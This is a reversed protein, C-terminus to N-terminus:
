RPPDGRWSFSNVYKAMDLALQLNAGSPHGSGFDPSFEHYLALAAAILAVDNKVAVLVIARLRAYSSNAGQPYADVAEGYGPQYGVMANPIEYATSADPYATRILDGAIDQATRNEAPRGSLYLTGGDGAVFRLVVGDPKMTAEYATGEGPYSFSFGPTSSTFRPNTQVPEGMPPRGCDPPCIYPAAHTAVLAFVIALAAIAMALGAGLSLLLHRTSMHRLPTAIYSGAPLANAPFKAAVHPRSPATGSAPEGDGSDAPRPRADRRAERSSRSSARSAAGCDPCFAMDPVVHDCHPCLVPEDPNSQDHEEHLLAAQLAVRLALVAAVTIALFLALHLGQPLQLVDVLGFSAYVLLAACLGLVVGAHAPMRRTRSSSAQRTYWLAAGVLGGISASTLPVAVGRIGAEVLLGAAPRHHAIMGSSFQPALRTLTAAATFSIAGLSGIVFGDLSERTRPYALRVVVAPLLMSAAAGLPILIGEQIVRHTTMGGGLATEYSRAMIQGTQWAWAVGLAVGLGATMLMTRRPLDRYADAERLYLLYLLPLGLTGVAVLPAQWRLAAFVVLATALVALGVRLPTRSRDPLNPFLSSVVSLRLVHEAPAPAYAGTRLLGRGDGREAALVAGCLGCLTGAPVDVACERCAMTPVDHGGSQPEDSM